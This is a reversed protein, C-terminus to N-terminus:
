QDARAAAGERGAAAEGLIDFMLVTCDSSGAFLRHRDAFARAPRKPGGPPPPPLPLAVLVGTTAATHGAFVQPPSHVSAWLVLLRRSWM